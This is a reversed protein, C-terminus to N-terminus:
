WRDAPLGSQCTMVLILYLVESQTFSSSAEKCETKTLLSYKEPHENECKKCVNCRFTLRFQHDIDMTGCEACRPNESPDLSMGVNTCSAILM